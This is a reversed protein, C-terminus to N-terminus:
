DNLPKDFNKCNYFMYSMNTVNSVVWDSIDGNFDTGEFLSEMNTVQSTDIYNLDANKGYREIGERVLKHITSDTAVVTDPRELKGIPALENLFGNLTKM